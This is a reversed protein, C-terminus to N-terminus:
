CWAKSVIRSDTMDVVIYYRTPFLQLPVGRYYEEIDDFSITGHRSKNMISDYLNELTDQAEDYDYITRESSMLYNLEGLLITILIEQIESIDNATYIDTEQDDGELLMYDANGITAVLKDQINM